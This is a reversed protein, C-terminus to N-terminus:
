RWQVHERATALLKKAPADDPRSKLVHECHFRVAFWAQDTEHQQAQQWHWDTDGPPQSRVM